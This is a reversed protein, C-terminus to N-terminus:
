NLCSIVLISYIFLIDSIELSVGSLELEVIGRAPLLMLIDRNGENM